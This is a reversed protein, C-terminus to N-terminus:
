RLKIFAEVAGTTTSSDYFFGVVSDRAEISSPAQVYGADTESICIKDGATANGASVQAFLLADTYGYTQCKCFANSACSVAMMCAANAFATTSLTVSYGDDNSVDWVVISGAAITSGYKNKVNIFQKELTGAQIGGDFGKNNSAGQRGYDALANFTVLSILLVIFKKM